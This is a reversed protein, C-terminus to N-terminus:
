VARHEQPVDDFSTPRSLPLGLAHKRQTLRADFLRHYAGQARLFAALRDFLGDVEGRSALDHLESFEAESM